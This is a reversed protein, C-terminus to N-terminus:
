SESKIEIHYRERLGKLWTRYLFDFKQMELLQRTYIRAEEPTMGGFRDEVKLIYLGAETWFPKSIQGPKLGKVAEVFQVSLESKKIYGLDGGPLRLDESFLMVIKEFPEGANLRSVITNLKNQFAQIESEKPKRLFLQRLRLTEPGTYEPHANLHAKIEDETVVVRSRVEQSVVKTIMIQESLAKRYSSLTFREKKLTELFTTDDLSYKKKIREIAEDIEENSVTIGLSQAEKLIVRSNIYEELLAERNKEFFKRKESPSLNRVDESAIFEMERYLESWTIPENNVVAVVEDLLIIGPGTGKSDAPRSTDEAGTKLPRQLVFLGMLCLLCLGKLLSQLFRKFSMKIM